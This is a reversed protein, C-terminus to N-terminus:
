VAKGTVPDITGAEVGAKHDKILKQVATKFAAEDESSSAAKQGIFKAAGKSVDSDTTPCRKPGGPHMEVQGCRPCRDTTNAGSTGPAKTKTAMMRSVLFNNLRGQVDVNFYEYRHAERLFVYNRLILEFRSNASHRNIKLEEAYYDLVIKVPEFDGFETHLRSLKGLLGVYYDYSNRVLNTLRGCLIFYEVVSEPWLYPGLAQKMSGYMSSLTKDKIKRVSREMDQLQKISRVGILCTRNASRWGSDIRSLGERTARREFLVDWMAGLGDLAAMSNEEAGSQTYKGPLAVTDLTADALQLRTETSLGKPCLEELVTMPVEISAQHVLSDGVSDDPGAKVTNIDATAPPGEAPPLPVLAPDPTPLNPPLPRPQQTRSDILAATLTAMQKQMSLQQQLFLSNQREQMERNQALQKEQANQQLLILAKLSEISPDPVYVPPPAQPAPYLVPPRPAPQHSPPPARPQLVPPQSPPEAGPGNPKVDPKRSPAVQPRPNPKSAPTQLPVPQGKPVQTRPYPSPDPFLPIPEEGPIAPPKTSEPEPVTEVRVKERKPPLSPEQRISALTQDFSRAFDTTMEALVPSPHDAQRVYDELKDYSDPSDEKPVSATKSPTALALYAEQNAQRRQDHLLDYQGQSLYTELDGDPPSRTSIPEEQRYYGVGGRPLTGKRHGERNCPGEKGCVRETLNKTRQFIARCKESGLYLFPRTDTELDTADTDDGSLDDDSADRNASDEDDGPLGDFGVTSM